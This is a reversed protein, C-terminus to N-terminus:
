KILITVERDDSVNLQGAPTLIALPDVGDDLIISININGVTIDDTQLQCQYQSTGYTATSTGDGCDAPYSVTPVGAGDLETIKIQPFSPDATQVINGFVDTINFKVPITRGQKYESNDIPSTFDEIGDLAYELHVTTTDTVTDDNDSVSITVTHTGNLLPGGTPGVFTYVHAPIDFFKESVTETYITGDGYDVEVDWTRGNRPDDFTVTSGLGFASEGLIINSPDPVSTITPIVNNVTMQLTASGSDGDKDTVTITVTKIGSTAYTHPAASSVTKTGQDVAADEAPTGDGWDITATHPADLVGVDDFTAAPAISTPVGEDTTQDPGPSVTPPVNEVTVVLTDTETGGHQNVVTVSVNFVGNDPYLHDQIETNLSDIPIVDSTGDDYDITVTWSTSHPDTITINPEYFQGENITVDAGADVIPKVTEPDLTGVTVVPPTDDQNITIMGSDFTSATRFNFSLATWDKLSYLIATSTDQCGAIDEFYHVNQQYRSDTVGDRDWDITTPASSTTFPALAVGAVADWGGLIIESISPVGSISQGDYLRTEVIQTYPYRSLDMPRNALGGDSSNFQYLYNMVSPYNPKCNIEDGGGHKLGLTHGMEHLMTAGQQDISGVQATFSGLSVLFDNGPREALGSSTPNDYQEHIFMGYRFVQRKATLRDEVEQQTGTRETDSGFYRLKLELFGLDLIETATSNTWAIRNNHPVEDDVIMHLQIGAVSGNADQANSNVFADVVNEIAISSPRHFQMYDLEAYLDKVNVDPCVTAGTPDSAYTAAPDCALEYLKGNTTEIRLGDFGYNTQLYNQDEWHDCIGDGDSDAKGDGNTDITCLDRITIDPNFETTEATIPDDLLHAVAEFNNGTSTTSKAGGNGQSEGKNQGPADGSNGSSGGGNGTTSIVGVYTATLTSGLSEPIVIFDPDPPNPETRSFKILPSTTFTSTDEIREATFEKLIVKRGSSHEASVIIRVTDETVDPDTVRISGSQIFYYADSEYWRIPNDQDPQTGAFGGPVVDGTTVRLSKENIFTQYSAYATDGEIVILTQINAFDPQNNFIVADSYFFGSPESNEILDEILTVELTSTPDAKSSLTITQTGTGVADFNTLFLVADGGFAVSSTSFGYDIVNVRREVEVAANGSADQVNFFVVNNVSGGVGCMNVGSLDIDLSNNVDADVIDFM